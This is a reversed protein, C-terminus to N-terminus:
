FRLIDTKVTKLFACNESILVRNLLTWVTRGFLTKTKKWYFHWSPSQTIDCRPGVFRPAGCESFCREPEETSIKKCRQGDSCEYGYFPTALRYFSLSSSATCYRQWSAFGTSIQLPALLCALLCLKIFFIVPCLPCIVV